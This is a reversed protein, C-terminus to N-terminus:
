RRPVVDLVRQEDESLHCAYARTGTYAGYQNKANILMLYTHATTPRNGYLISEAPARKVSEIQMSYPDSLALITPAATSCLDAGHAATPADAVKDARTQMSAADAACPVQSFTNGCRYLTQADSTGALLVAVTATLLIRTRITMVLRRM